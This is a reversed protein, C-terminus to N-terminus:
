LPHYIYTPFMCFFFARICKHTTLEMDFTAFFQNFSNMQFIKLKVTPLTARCKWLTKDNLDTLVQVVDLSFNRTSFSTQYM